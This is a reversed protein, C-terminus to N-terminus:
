FEKQVFRVMESEGEVICAKRYQLIVKRVYCTLPHQFNSFFFQDLTSFLRSKLSIVSIFTDIQFRSDIMLPGIVLSIM